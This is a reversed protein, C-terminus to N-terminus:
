VMCHCRLSIRRSQAQSGVLCWYMCRFFPIAHRGDIQLVEGAASTLQSELSVPQQQQQLEREREQKRKMEAKVSAKTRPQKKTAQGGGPAVGVEAAAEQVAASAARLLEM